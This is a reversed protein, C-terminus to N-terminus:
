KPRKALGEKEFGDWPFLPGPDVKRGPAVDSHGLVYEPQINWRAMIDKCLAKVADIQVDPFPKLGYTHGPNVVEIGISHSNIDTEGEWESVGAHWARKEEDVLQLISGDYDVVYHSSAEKEPVMLYTLAEEMDLTDTYHLIIMRPKAGNKREGFNPSARFEIDM